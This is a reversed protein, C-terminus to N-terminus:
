EEEASKSDMLERATVAALNRTGDVYTLVECRLDELLGLKDKPFYTAASGEAADAPPESVRRPSEARIHGDKLQRTSWISIYRFGTKMYDIKIRKVHIAEVDVDFELLNIVIERFRDMCQILEDHPDESRPCEIRDFDDERNPESLTVDLGNGKAKWGVNLVRRSDSQYKLRASRHLEAQVNAGTSTEM